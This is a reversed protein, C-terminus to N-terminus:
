SAWGITDMLPTQKGAGSLWHPYPMGISVSAQHPLGAVGPEAAVGGGGGSIGAYPNHDRRWRVAVAPALMDNGFGDRMLSM